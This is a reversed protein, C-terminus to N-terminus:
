VQSHINELARVAYATVLAPDKEWWRGSSNAWSGDSQQLNILKLALEGAWAVQRGDAVTLTEDGYASLAKSMTHYYYYLGDAGMGPNEELTYNHRLWDYVATVRPDDKKLDAYIYSLLGAYSMSGYSHLGKKNTPDYVFGGLNKADSKVWSEHNYKPLNQCRELFAIAANWDLDKAGAASSDALSRTQHLAEIAFSTNSVDFHLSKDGYGIGGDYPAGESGPPFHGQQGILFMRARKLVPEYAVPDAAVLAQVCVSTSYNAIGNLYIGGDAQQSQLLYDYGKQVFEPPQAKVAGTPEEVFATLILATLGPMDPASWYGAANQKHELTFLGRNIAHEIELQLSRDKAPPPPNVPVIKRPTQARVSRAAVGFASLGGLLMRLFTSRKM